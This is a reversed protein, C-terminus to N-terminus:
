RTISRKSEIWYQDIKDFILKIKVGNILYEIIANSDDLEFKSFYGQEKIKSFFLDEKDLFLVPEGFKFLKLNTPVVGNNHFILQKKDGEEFKYLNQIEELDICKQLLITKDEITQASGSSSFILLFFLSQVILVWGLKNFFLNFRKM